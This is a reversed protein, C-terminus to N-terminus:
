RKNKKTSTLKKLAQNFHRAEVVVKENSDKALQETLASISATKVLAALEAGSFGNTADALEDFTVGSIPPKTANKTLARIISVRDDRSPLGVHIVHDLRGPRLMAPDIIDPRNTAALIFVQKRPELGDMETLLQNVVRSASGGGDSADSRRPCLADLEDFFIVCPASARARQFVQRIARESEGVYMNLLEPGKVSIFNIGSENAVAKAILTKGCGPPGHMLIGTSTNLGLADYQERHKVATMIHVQLTERVDNMAGVDEWTVDPITAFGERKASPQVLSIAEVFDAQLIRLSDLEEENLDWEAKLTSLAQDLLIAFKNDSCNVQELKSAEMAEALSDNQKLANRKEEISLILRKVSLVTAERTLATLDAGVFGPTLHAIRDFDFNEELRLSRCLVRLIRSRSKESPIGLAIERDFRGARRLAPDLSDPRNTAGILLVEQPLERSSLDDVCTLLQAVIRREMERQATERKPTVADIEDIFFVCPAAAVAQAFLDRIRQESEGSIGAVIEPAAIKLLPLGLEGAIAGALMTKGCGPPGHLLFGRPPLVGLHRYLEPHTMHMLLNVVELLKDEMGGVDALKMTPYALQVGKDNRSSKKKKIAQEVEGDVHGDGEALRKKSNLTKPILDDTSGKPTSSSYLKILSRNAMNSETRNAELMEEDVNLARFCDTILNKFAARKRREYEPYKRRLADALDDADLIHGGSEILTTKCRRILIPDIRKLLQFRQADRAM